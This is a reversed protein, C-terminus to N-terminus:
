RLGKQLVVILKAAEARNIRDDPRVTGTPKGTRDTDGTILGHKWATLIARAYPHSAPLDSFPSPIGDELPIGFTELLTAVVAGRPAPTHVPLDERYASLGLSEAAAIFPAAWSDRASSNAPIAAPDINKGASLLAMKVVQAYTVPDAPGFFGTPNDQADRYGSVIGANVLNAIFPAFWAALPVDRFVIQRGDIMVTLRDSLGPLTSVSQGSTQSGADGPLQGTVEPLTAGTTANAGVSEPTTATVSPGSSSSSVPQGQATLNNQQRLNILWFANGGGGGQSEGSPFIWSLNNGSNLCGVLCQMASANINDSDKVDLSTLTRAGQADIKWQTGTQSSRLSLRNGSAGQLTVDHEITQVTTAAFTLTSAAAAIKTLNYFTTSGSLTQDTGALQVTGNNHSFIGSSKTWDGTVSLTGSPATFTGSSLTLSGSLSLPGSGGTLTGGNITLTSVTIARASQSLTGSTVTLVSGSLNNTALTLTNSPKNVTLASFDSATDAGGSAVTQARTGTFTVTGGNSAFNGGTKSWNGWLSLTGTPATFTGSSLTLSGSLAVPGSSGTFTGGNITLGGSLTQKATSAQYTGGGVTLAGGISVAKGNADFTGNSMTVTKTGGDTLNDALQFTGGSGNFTLNSGLAIGNTTITKTGSTASFTIGGTYSNTMGSALTFSTPITMASSGALTSTGSFVLTGAGGFTTAGNITLTGNVTLNSSLADTSTGSLTVNNWAIGATNLTASAGVFLTSGATVVTGAVYTLTGTDYAVTGSVTITGPTNITINNRYGSGLPNNGQSWTGTGNLVINTTGTVVGVNSPTALSGGVYITFGNLTATGFGTSVTLNGNVTLDSLLTYTRGSVNNGLTLNNWVIGSPLNGSATVM